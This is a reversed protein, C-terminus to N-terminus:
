LRVNIIRMFHIRKEGFGIRQTKLLYAFTRYSQQTEQVHM